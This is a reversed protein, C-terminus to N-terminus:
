RGRAEAPIAADVDHSSVPESALTVLFAFVHAYEFGCVCSAQCAGHDAGSGAPGRAAPAGAGAARESRQFPQEHTEREDQEGDLRPEEGTAAIERAPM